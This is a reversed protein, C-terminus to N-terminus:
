NKINNPRWNGGEAGLRKIFGLVNGLAKKYFPNGSLDPRLASVSLFNLFFKFNYNSMTQCQKFNNSNTQYQKFPKIHNSATQFLKFNNSVIM